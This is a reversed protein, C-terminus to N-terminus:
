DEFLTEGGSRFDYPRYCILGIMPAEPSEDVGEAMVPLDAFGDSVNEAQTNKWLARPSPGGFLRDTSGVLIRWM